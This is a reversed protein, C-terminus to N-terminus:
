EKWWGKGHRYTFGWNKLSECVHANAADTRVWLCGGKMVLDDVQLGNRLTFKNFGLRSFTRRRQYTQWPGEYGDARTISPVNKAPTTGRSWRLGGNGPPIFGVLPCIAADFKPEWSGQHLLRAEYGAAKLEAIDIFSELTKSHLCRKIRFPLDSYRYAFCANGTIGFEIIVYDGIHMLFANNTTPTAGALDLLRSNARQRFEAYDQRRDNMADAGLAFWMDRIAPEFGLWYNLRRSDASRDESLLDFFDKILRVKLWSNVMERADNDPHGHKDLVYSDWAMRHLWPNGIFQVAADRLAINEPRSGSAAYRSVLLAVCRISISKSLRLGTKGTAIDVLRAIHSHFGADNLNAGAQMLAYVAEERIWSSSPVGLNALAEALSASVGALLEQGYRSCAEGTLLNSHHILTRFWLPKLITSAALDRQQAALWSRLTIWGNQSEASTNEGDRPFSWYGRLLYSFYRLRWRDPAAQAHKLLKALLGADELLCWGFFQAAAGICVYKIDLYGPLERSRRYNLVAQRVPRRDVRVPPREIQITIKELAKSMPKPNGWYENTSISFSRATAQVLSISLDDLCHNV